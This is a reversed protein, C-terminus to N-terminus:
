KGNYIQNDEIVSDVNAEKASLVAIDQVEENAVGLESPTLNPYGVQLVTAVDDEEGENISFSEGSPYKKDIELCYAAKGNGEPIIKNVRLNFNNYKVKGIAIDETYIIMNEELEEAYSMNFFM